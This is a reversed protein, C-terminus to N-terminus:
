VLEGLVRDADVRLFQVPLMQNKLEKESHVAVKIFHETLGIWYGKKVQEFLVTQSSGIFQSYFQHKKLESLRRLKESRQAIKSPAVKDDLKLSQTNMRESYSFVHFYSFPLAELTTYTQEFLEDTEGPFGVIVDTGLGLNPVTQAVKQVFESYESVTYKRRMADLVTDSATQIPLHLYPCVKSNPDAMKQILAWDVTTPEISSIRIRAVKPMAELAEIIDIMSKGQDQYTGVNIGTLVIEQYGAECLAKAESIVDQFLRSRAPGRAFPIVCFSCYFNCGDQIKLNARTHKKDIAPTPNTFASKTFPTVIVQPTADAQSEEIINRITMKDANGVV